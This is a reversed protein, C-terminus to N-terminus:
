WLPKSESIHDYLRSWDKMNVKGDCNVDACALAYGSLSNVENIHDYLTSWDKMNVKGDGSVDGIPCIKLNKILSNSGVTITVEAACHNNKTVRLTYVGPVVNTFAYSDTTVCSYAVTGNQILQVTVPDADTLYSFVSGSVTVGSPGSNDVVTLHIEKDVGSLELMGMQLSYNGMGFRNQLIAILNETVGLWDELESDASSYLVATWRQGDGEPTLLDAIVKADIAASMDNRPSYAEFYGLDDCQCRPLKNAFHTQDAIHDVSIDDLNRGFYLHFLGSSQDDWTVDTYICKGDIWLVNWAHNESRNTAPNYSTGLVTWAKIGACQLLYQYARAYGACVCKGDVLAGFATQDNDTAQYTVMQAVRDHLWVAKSYDDKGAQSKMDTMIASVANQFLVNAKEITAKSIVGGYVEYVPYLTVIKGKSMSYEFTGIFWFYEPHDAILMEVVEFTGSENLALNAPITISKDVDAIGQQILDYVKQYSDSLFSYGYEREAEPLPMEAALSAVPMLGTLLVLVLIVITTNIAIRKM